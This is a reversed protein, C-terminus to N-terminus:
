GATLSRPGSPLAAVSPWTLKLPRLKSPPIESGQQGVEGGRHCSSCCPMTLSAWRAGPLVRVAWKTASRASLQAAQPAGPVCVFVGCNSGMVLAGGVAGAGKSGNAGGLGPV